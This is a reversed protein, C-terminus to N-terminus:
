GALAAFREMFERDLPTLSRLGEAAVKARIREFEERNVPHLQDPRIRNWRELTEREGTALEVIVKPVPAAARQGVTWGTEARQRFNRGGTSREMWFLYLWGGVFGGLHGLHAVNGMLPLPVPSIAGGVSLLTFVIVMTRTTMPLIGWIYVIDHPWYRAYALSVGFIAGSAGLVPHQPQLFCLLAGGLGSAFYLGLFRAGGLRLELRPGFVYLAIMNFLIHGFSAHAFMATIATWPRALADPPYWVLQETLGPQTQQLVFVAVCAVVIASVWRTM